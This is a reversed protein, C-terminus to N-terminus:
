REWTAELEEATTRSMDVRLTVPGEFGVSNRNSTGNAYDVSVYLKLDIVVEAFERETSLRPAVVAWPDGDLTWRVSGPVVPNSTRTAFPCGAPALETSDACANLSARGTAVFADQGQKTLAVTLLSVETGADLTLVQLENAQYELFPLGTTLLYSGPFVEMSGATFEEGNVLIPIKASRKATVPVTVTSRELLYGGDDQKRVQVSTAVPTGGLRYTVPVETSTAPVDSVNVDTLPLRQLSQRLSQSTLAATAGTGTPGFTLAKESDGAGLAAFYQRVLDAPDSIRAGDATANTESVLISPDPDRDVGFTQYLVIGLVVVAVSVLIAPVPRIRRRPRGADREAPPDFTPTRAGGGTSGPTERARAALLTASPDFQSPRRPTAQSAPGESPAFPSAPEVM